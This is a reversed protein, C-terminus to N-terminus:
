NEIIKIDMNKKKNINNINTRIDRISFKPNLFYGGGIYVCFKESYTTSIQSDWIAGVVNKHGLLCCLRGIVDINSDGSIYMDDNLKFSVKTMKNRVKTHKIHESEMYNIVDEYETGNLVNHSLLAKLMRKLPYSVALGKDEYNGVNNDTNQLHLNLLPNNIIADNPVVLHYQRYNDFVDVLTVYYYDIKEWTRINKINFNKSEPMSFKFEFVKGWKTKFDGHSLLKILYKALKQENYNEWKIGKEQPNIHKLVLTMIFSFPSLKYDDETIKNSQKKLENVKELLEKEQPTLDKM